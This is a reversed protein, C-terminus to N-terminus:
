VDGVVWQSYLLPVQCIGVDKGGPACCCFLSCALAVASFTDFDTLKFGAPGKASAWFHKVVAVRVQCGICVLGPQVSQICLAVVDGGLGEAVVGGHHGTHHHRGSVTFATYTRSVVGAQCPVIYLTFPQLDALEICLNSRRQGLELVIVHDIVAPPCGGVKVQVDGRDAQKFGAHQVGDVIAPTAQACGYHHCAAIVTLLSGVGVVVGQCGVARHNGHAADICRTVEACQM